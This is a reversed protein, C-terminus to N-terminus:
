RAYKTYSNDLDIIECEHRFVQKEKPPPTMYDGYLQTLYLDYEKPIVVEMGEFVATRGEAFWDKRMLERMGWVGCYNIVQECSDYPMQRYLLDKKERVSQYEKWVFRLIGEFIYKLVAKVITSSKPRDLEMWIRRVYLFVLLSRSLSKKYGDLPFVDMFVGHNICRSKVSSEIFATDSNRLKAFNMLYEPDTRYTQLFLHAPLESQAVECFKVYDPRPLGVDIDDDWPIFGQHRVAGLCSGGVLFYRLNYKKCIRIFHKLMELEINRLKQMEADTM